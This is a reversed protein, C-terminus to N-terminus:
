SKLRRTLKEPELTKLNDLLVNFLQASAYIPKEEIVVYAEEIEQDRSDNLM